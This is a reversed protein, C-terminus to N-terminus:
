RQWNSRKKAAKNDEVVAVATDAGVITGLLDALKGLAAAKEEPYEFRDYTGEVGKIAHGLTREAIFRDVKARSMLTRATRRLDHVTWHPLHHGAAALKRDFELKGRSYGNWPAPEKGRKREGALVFPSRAFRPQAEIIAMALQPLKLRGANGKERPEAPITWVGDAGIDEWRMRAVKDKRQGTLLAIRVFVGFVGNREAQNWVAGLEDDNLIRDRATDKPSSRRMGPIVPIAYDDNRAAFFRCISTMYSLVLDAARAGAEDEVHDLLKSITSRKIQTFEMGGLRPLIHKDLIRRIDPASRLTRKENLVHRAYWGEIVAKGSQPGARDRGEKIANIVDTAKKRAEKIELHDTNGLTTWIQKGDPGRAEAVFARHGSPEVRIYHGALQPDTHYYRKAKAKLAAVGADSLTKRRPTM